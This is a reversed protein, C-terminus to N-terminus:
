GSAGSAATPLCPRVASSPSFSISVSSVASGEEREELSYAQVNECTPNVALLGLIAVSM